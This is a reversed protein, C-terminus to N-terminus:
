AFSCHIGVGQQGREIRPPLDELRPVVGARNIIQRDRQSFERLLPTHGSSNLEQM